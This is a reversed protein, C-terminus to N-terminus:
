AGGVADRSLLLRALEPLSRPRASERPRAVDEQGARDVDRKARHSRGPRRPPQRDLGPGRFLLFMLAFAYRVAQNLRPYAKQLRPRQKFTDAVCLLITSAEGYGGLVITPDDYAGNGRLSVLLLMATVAHHLAYGATTVSTSDSMLYGLMTAALLTPRNVVGLAVFLVCFLGSAGNQAVVKDEGLSRLLVQHLAAAAVTAYYM